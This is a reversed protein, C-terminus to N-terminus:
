AAERRGEAAVREYLDIVRAAIRPGSFECARERLEAPRGAALAKTVGAALAVPDPPAVACGPLGSLTEPVDGVAVSVVPTSCALAEKVALPSGESASTLLMVDVANMVLVVEERSFGELYIPRLEPLDRRLEGVTADFLERRKVPNNPAGPFLIYRQEPSWDLRARAELRGVPRFLDCDIASPIVTANRCGLSLANAAAVFVPHTVRAVIWSVRQQWPVYSADSGWFTTVVPIRRQLMAVAGSLGYHAHVLDFGDHVLERVRRAANAYEIRRARGDFSLVQMEVGAARLSQVQYAVFSGFWPEEETPYMNTVTLVKM